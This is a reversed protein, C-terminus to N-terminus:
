VACRSLLFTIFAMRFTRARWRGFETGFLEFGYIWYGNHGQEHRHSCIYVLAHIVYWTIRYYTRISNYETNKEEAVPSLTM